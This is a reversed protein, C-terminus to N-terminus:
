PAPAPVEREEVRLDGIAHVVVALASRPRM